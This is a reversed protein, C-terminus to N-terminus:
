QPRTVLHITKKDTLANKVQKSPFHFEIWLICGLSLKLSIFIFSNM